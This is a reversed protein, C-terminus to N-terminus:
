EHSKGKAEVLQQCILYFIRAQVFAQEVPCLEKYEAFIKDDETDPGFFVPLFLGLLQEETFHTEYGEALTKLMERVKEFGLATRGMRETGGGLLNLLVQDDKFLKAHVTGWAPHAM